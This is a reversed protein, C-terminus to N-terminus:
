SAIRELLAPVIRKHFPMVLALYVTGLLNNRKVLTTATVNSETASVNGVDIVIRFDLHRDDFGLVVRDPASSVIPFFGIQRDAPLSRDPAPKLGLPRVVANRLRLLRAIWPPMNAFARTTVDHANAGPERLVTAYADSFDADPLVDGVVTPPQVPATTM